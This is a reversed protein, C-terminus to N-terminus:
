IRVKGPVSLDQHRFQMRLFVRADKPKEINDLIVWYYGIKKTGFVRNQNCLIQIRRKSIGWKEATQSISLYEM